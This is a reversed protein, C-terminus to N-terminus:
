HKEYVTYKPKFGVKEPLTEKNFNYVRLELKKAGNSKLRVELDAMLKKGIGIMKYEDKVIVYLIEGINNNKYVLNNKLTIIKGLAFAIIINYDEVVTLVYDTKENFISQFIRKYREEPIKERVDNSNKSHKLDLEKFLPLINKFDQKKALRIRM